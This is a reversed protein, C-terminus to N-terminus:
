CFSRKVIWREKHEDRFKHNLPFEGPTRSVYNQIDNRIKIATAKGVFQNFGKKNLWLAKNKKEDLIRMQFEDIYPGQPLFMSNQNYNYKNLSTMSEDKYRNNLILPLSSSKELRIKKNKSKFKKLTSKEDIVGLSLNSKMKEFSSNTLQELKLKKIIKYGIDTDQFTIKISSENKLEYTYNKDLKNKQLYNDIVKFLKEKSPFNKININAIFKPEM